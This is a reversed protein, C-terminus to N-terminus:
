RITREHTAQEVIRGFNGLVVLGITSSKEPHFQVGHVTGRRVSSAFVIGHETTSSVDRPDAPVCNYSHTFYFHAGDPIGALLPDKEDTLDITNWGVHPVKIGEGSLRECYGPLLGLGRTMGDGGETGREFLLQMGLCIGLFPVGEAVRSLIADRQGSTEMYTAADYFSGVGPLVIGDAAAIREPDATIFADYGAAVIGKEVSRLNGKCYDVVAISGTPASAM